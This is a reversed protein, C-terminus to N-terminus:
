QEDINHETVQVLVNGSETDDIREHLHTPFRALIEEESVALPVLKDLGRIKLFDLIRNLQISYKIENLKSSRLENILTDVEQTKLVLGKIRKKQRKIQEELAKVESSKRVLTKGKKEGAIAWNMMAKLYANNYLTQHTIRHGEEARKEAYEQCHRVSLTANKADEQMNLIVAAFDMCKRLNSGKPLVGTEEIFAKVLDQATKGM